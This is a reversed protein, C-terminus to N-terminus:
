PAASAPKILVKSFGAAAAALEASFAVLTHYNHTPNPTVDRDEAVDADIDLSGNSQSEIGFVVHPLYDDASHNSAGAIAGLSSLADAGGIQIRQHPVKTADGTV